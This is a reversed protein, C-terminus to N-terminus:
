RTIFINIATNATTCKFYVKTTSWATGAPDKYVVGGKSISTIFYNGPIIGISEGSLSHTISFETNVTGSDSVTLWQGFINEGPKLNSTTGFSIGSQSLAYIRSLDSDMNTLYQNFIHAKDVDITGDQNVDFDRFNSKKITRM